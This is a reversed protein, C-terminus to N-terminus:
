TRNVLLVERRNNIADNVQNMLESSALDDCRLTRALLEHLM